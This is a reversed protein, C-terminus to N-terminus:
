VQMESEGFRVFLCIILIMMVCECPLLSTSYRFISIYFRKSNFVLCIKHSKIAVAPRTVKYIALTVKFNFPHGQFVIMQLRQFRILITFKEAWTVKLNSLHGQFSCSVEEMSGSAKHTM